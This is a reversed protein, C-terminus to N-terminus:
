RYVGSSGKNEKLILIKQTDANPYIKIIKTM